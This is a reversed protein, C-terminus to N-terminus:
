QAVEVQGGLAVHYWVRQLEAQEAVYAFYAALRAVYRDRTEKVKRASM